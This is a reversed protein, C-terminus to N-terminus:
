SIRVQRVGRRERRWGGPPLGARRKFFASFRPPDPYGVRAGIEAVTLDTDGLLRKAEEERLRLLYEYPTAGTERAFATEFSRRSMGALGAAEEMTPPDDLRDAFWQDALTRLRGGRERRSSERVVIRGPAIHVQRCPRGELREALLRAASRGVARYPVRVSSIEMGAVVGDWFRDGMGLVGVNAPLAVGLKKALQIAQRAHFDNLCFIGTRESKALREELMPLTRLWDVPGGGAEKLGKLIGPARRTSFLVRGCYGMDLLHRGAARGIAGGDLSVSSIGGSVPGDGVHVMEATGPLGRIWTESIFEGVVADVAGAELLKRLQTEFREYLVVVRWGRELAVEMFGQYKELDDQVHGGFGYVVRVDETKRNKM